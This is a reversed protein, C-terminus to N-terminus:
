VRVRADSPTKEKCLQSCSGDKQLVAFKKTVIHPEALLRFM